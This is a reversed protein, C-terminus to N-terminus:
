MWEDGALRVNRKVLAVGMPWMVQFLRLLLPAAALSHLQCRRHSLRRRRSKSDPTSPHKATLM